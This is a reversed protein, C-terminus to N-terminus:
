ICICSILPHTFVPALVTLSKSLFYIRIAVFRLFTGVRLQLLLDATKRISLARADWPELLDFLFPLPIESQNLNSKRFFNEERYRWCLRTVLRILPVQFLLLKDNNKCIQILFYTQSIKSASSIQCLGDMVLYAITHMILLILQM